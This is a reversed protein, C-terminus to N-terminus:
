EPLWRFRLGLGGRYSWPDKEFVWAATETGIEDTFSGTFAVELDGLMKYAQGSVFLTLMFPGARAADVEVELGPGIGHYTKEDGGEIVIFRFTAPVPPLNSGPDLRVARNVVGTVEVKEQLYEFSPKIRLRRDWAELTFAIGAGASLVLPKVEVSTKSGQGPIAVEAFLPEEPDVMEDPAGERAVDREPGFYGAVDGHLFFRPRGPVMGLGPTMLEATAGVFPGVMLDDDEATVCAGTLLLQDPDLCPRVGELPDSGTLASNAVAADAGQVLVGSFVALAPVWRQTEDKAEPEDTAPREAVPTPEITTVEAASVVVPAQALDDASPSSDPASRETEEGEPVLVVALVQAADGDVPSPESAANESVPVIVLLAPVGREADHKTGPERFLAGSADPQAPIEEAQQVLVGGFVALAPVWGESESKTGTEGVAAGPSACALAALFWVACRSKVRNQM